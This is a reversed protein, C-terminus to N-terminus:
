SLSLIDSAECRIMNSEANSKIKDGTYIIRLFVLQLASDIFYTSDMLEHQLNSMLEYFYDRLISNLTTLITCSSFDDIFGIILDIPSIVVISTKLSSM